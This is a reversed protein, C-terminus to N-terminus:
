VRFGLQARAGKKVKLFGSRELLGRKPPPYASARLLNPPNYPLKRFNPTTNIPLVDRVPVPTVPPASPTDHERSASAADAASVPM